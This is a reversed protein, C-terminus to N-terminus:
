LQCSFVDPKNQSDKFVVRMAAPEKKVDSIDIGIYSLKIIKKFFIM